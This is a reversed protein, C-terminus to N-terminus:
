HPQCESSIPGQPATVWSLQLYFPAPAPGLPLSRPWPDTGGLSAGRKARMEAWPRPCSRAGQGEPADRPSQHHAGQRWSLVGDRPAASLRGLLPMGDSRDKVQTPRPTTGPKLCQLCLQRSSKHLSGNNGKGNPLCRPPSRSFWFYVPTGGKWTRCVRGFQGRFHHQEAHRGAPHPAKVTRTKWIIPRNM